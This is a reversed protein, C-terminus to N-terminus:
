NKSLNSNYAIIKNRLSKTSKQFHIDMYKKAIEAEHQALANIIDEHEKCSYPIRGKQFPVFNLVMRTKRHLIALQEELIPNHSLKAIYIHFEIDYNDADEPSDEACALMKNNIERLENLQEETIYNAASYVSLQELVGRVEYLQVVDDIGISSVVVGVRPNHVVLGESQLIRFAERVPTRSVNLQKSLEVERIKDGSKLTRNMIDDRIKQAVMEAISEQVVRMTNKTM